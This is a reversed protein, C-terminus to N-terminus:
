LIAFFVLARCCAGGMFVSFWLGEEVDEKGEELRWRREGEGLSGGLLCPELVGAYARSPHALSPYWCGLPGGDEGQDDQGEGDGM